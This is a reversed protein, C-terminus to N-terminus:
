KCVCIKCAGINMNFTKDCIKRKKTNRRQHRTVTKKEGMAGRNVAGCTHSARPPHPWRRPVAQADAALRGPNRNSRLRNRWYWHWCCCCRRQWYWRCYCCPHPTPHTNRARGRRPARTDRPAGLSPPRVPWSRHRHYTPRPNISHPREDMLPFM